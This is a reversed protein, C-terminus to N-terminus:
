RTLTYINERILKPIDEHELYEDLLYEQGTAEKVYVVEQLPNGDKAKYVISLGQQRLIAIIPEQWLKDACSLSFFFSFPGYSEMKALIEHRVQLLVM